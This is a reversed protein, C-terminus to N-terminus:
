PTHRGLAWRLEPCRLLFAGGGVVAAGLAVLLSLELVIGGWSGAPGMWSRALHLAVCMVATLLATRTWSAAVPGDVLRGVRRQLMLLLIIGQISACAATSWALGAERLDTWILLCNLLLNLGVMAVAVRVARRADDLAYFGRTLVQTMSYAWIAPAYGMLVRGVREADDAGFRGGRLIAETLPQRVMFLGASAPLGIFLVLRLGRRLTAAFGDPDGTVRALAPFIATAVAIGFVGLPFQYLRQAFSVAAMAGPELPYDVGMITPGITAPYSAILGDLFTNIELAGLGVVMPLAARAVRAAPARAETPHRAFHGRGLAWASWIV